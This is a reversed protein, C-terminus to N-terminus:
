DHGVLLEAAVFLVVFALPLIAAYVTLAREGRGLIALLAIIGGALGAAFSPFAGLPGMLRWGLQLVVYALALWAAWRGLPTVPLITM